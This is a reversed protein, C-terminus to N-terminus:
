RIEGHQAADLAADYETETLLLGLCWRGAVFAAQHAWAPPSKLRQWEEVPLTDASPSGPREEGPSAPPVTTAM